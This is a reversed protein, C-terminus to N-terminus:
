LDNANAIPPPTRTKAIHQHGPLQKTLEGGCECTSPVCLRMLIIGALHIRGCANEDTLVAAVLSHRQENESSVGSVHNRRLIIHHDDCRRSVPCEVSHVGLQGGRHLDSPVGLFRNDTVSFM